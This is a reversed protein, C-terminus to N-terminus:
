LLFEYLDYDLGYWHQKITVLHRFGFAEFFRKASTNETRTDLWIKHFPSYAAINILESLLKNGIGLRRYNLDVVLWEIWRTGADERHILVGVPQGEYLAILIDLPNQHIRNVLEHPTYKALEREIAEQTYPLRLVNQKLLKAVSRISTPHDSLLRIELM